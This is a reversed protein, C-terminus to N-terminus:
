GEMKGAHVGSKQASLIQQGAQKRIGSFEAV